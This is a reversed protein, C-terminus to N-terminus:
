SRPKQPSTRALVPANSTGTLGKLSTFRQILVVAEAAAATGECRAARVILPGIDRKAKPDKLAGAWGAVVGPPLTALSADLLTPAWRDCEAVWLRLDEFTQQHNNALGAAFPLMNAEAVERAVEPDVDGVLSLMEAAVDYDQGELRLNLPLGERLLRVSLEPHTYVLLEDIAGFESEHRELIDLIDQHRVDAISNLVFLVNEGPRPLQEVLAAEVAELDVAGVVKAWGRPDADAYMLIFEWFNHWRLDEAPSGLQAILARNDLARVFKRAARRCATAPQKTRRFMPLYQLLFGFTRFLAHHEALPDPSFMAALREAHLEFLRVGLAPNLDSLCKFLEDASRLDPVEDLMRSLVDEDLAEGTAKILDGGGGHAIRDVARTTSYIHPWGGHVILSALSGPDVDGMVSALRGSDDNMLVNVLSGVAWGTEPSVSKVWAVIVDIHEWVTAGIVPADRGDLQELLQSAMAVEPGPPTELARLALQRDHEDTRVGCSILAWRTETSHARGLLWALGRLSTSTSDVAVGILRAADKRDELAVEKSVEPLPMHKARRGSQPKTESRNGTASATPQVAVKEAAVKTAYHPPHLMWRLVAYATRLHSCRWVGQHEVALLHRQLTELGKEVWARDRNLAVAYPVLEDVTVGSDVGAIQAVALACALLDARDFARVEQMSRSTRRWGGTLIYFFQWATPEKAAREVRAEFPEDGLHDGVWDDLVQVKALLDDRHALVYRQLVAVAGTGSVSVTAVGGAIHDVGAILVLQDASAAEALERVTDSSLDQADDVFLLKRHPFHRLDELWPRVAVRRARDRLQLIEVGDAALRQAVQYATISKGSGSEGNLVVAHSQALADQVHQVEQLPPCVAVDAAALRGGSLAHELGRNADFTVVRWAAEDEANAYPEALRGLVTASDGMVDDVGSVRPGVRSVRWQDDLPAILQEVVVEDSESYGIVLLTRPHEQVLQQVRNLVSAPVVGDEHPLVWDADPNAVDGHPKYLVDDPIRTGYLRLYAAELASDWNFSVVCEVVGAHILRALGEHAQSRQGSRQADLATFEAQFRAQAVGSGAITQWGLAWRAEDDGVLAKAPTDELGLDAALHARAKRDADIADWMLANLGATDPYRQALSLGAGVVAVAGLSLRKGLAEINSAM